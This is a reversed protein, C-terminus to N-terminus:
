ISVFQKDKLSAAFGDAVEHVKSWHKLAKMNDIWRRVNPYDQYTCQVLEGLAVMEAGVYDAFIGERPRPPSPYLSTLVAIRM